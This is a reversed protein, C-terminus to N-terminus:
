HPATPAASTASKTALRKRLADTVGAGSPPSPSPRKLGKGSKGKSADAARTPTVPEKKRAFAAGTWDPCPSPARVGKDVFEDLLDEIMYQRGGRKIAAKTAYDFRDEFGMEVADFKLVVKPEHHDLCTTVSVTGDEENKVADYFGKQLEETSHDASLPRGNATYHQSIATGFAEWTDLGEFLVNPLATEASVRLGM